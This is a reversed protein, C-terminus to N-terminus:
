SVPAHLLNPTKQNQPQENSTCQKPSSTPVQETETKCQTYHPLDAEVDEGFEEMDVHNEDTSNPSDPPVPQTVKDPTTTDTVETSKQNQKLLERYM